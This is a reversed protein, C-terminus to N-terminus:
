FFIPWKQLYETNFGLVCLMKFYSLSISWKVIRLLSREKVNGFVNELVNGLLNKDWMVVM